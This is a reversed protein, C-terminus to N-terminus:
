AEQAQIERDSFCHINKSGKLNSNQSSPYLGPSQFSLQQEEGQSRTPKEKVSQEQLLPEAQDFFINQLRCAGLICSALKDFM